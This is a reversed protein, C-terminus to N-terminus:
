PQGAQQSLAEILQAGFDDPGISLISVLLADDRLRLHYVRVGTLCTTSEVTRGAVTLTTKGDIGANAACAAQDYDARWAPFFAAMDGPDLAAISATALNRGNDGVVAAAYRRVTSGPDAGFEREGEVDEAVASGAIEGPLIELLSRDVIAPLTPTPGPTAMPALTLTPGPTAVPAPTLTPGATPPSGSPTTSQVTGTPGPSTAPGFAPATASPGPSTAPTVSPAVACGGAVLAAMVLGVVLVAAM